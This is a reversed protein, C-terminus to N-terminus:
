GVARSFRLSGVLVESFIGAIVAPVGFGSTLGGGRTTRPPVSVRTQSEAWMRDLGDSRPPDGRFVTESNVPKMLEDQRFFDSYEPCHKHERTMTRIDDM